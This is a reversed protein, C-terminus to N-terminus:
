NAATYANYDVGDIVADISAIDASAKNIVIGFKLDSEISVNVSDSTRSEGEATAKAAISTITIGGRNIELTWLSAENDTETDSIYDNYLEADASTHAAFIINSAGTLYDNNLGFTIADWQSKTGTYEVTNLNRCNDFAATSISTVSSPITVSSLSQCNNFAYNGIATVSEPIIVSPLLLCDDFASDGIRTVGECITVSTLSQCSNFTNGRIEKVSGPITVSTLDRCNEFARSGISTVSNPISVSRLANCYYFASNGITAVGEPITVSKLARCGYFANNGIGKVGAPITVSALNRCNNFANNGIRTVGSEIVVGTINSQESYWPAQTNTTWDPMAGTGSITLTGNELTYYLTSDPIQTGEAANAAPMAFLLASLMTIVMIMWTTRKKM